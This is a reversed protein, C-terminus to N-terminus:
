ESGHAHELVQTLLTDNLPVLPRSKLQRLFEALWLGGVALPAALDLWHPQLGAAAEPFSPAVLWYLDVYRMALVAAAVLSLARAQRKLDRSLLLLFPLVFHFLLLLLGVM